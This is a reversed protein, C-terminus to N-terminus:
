KRLQFVYGFGAKTYEFTYYQKAATNITYTKSGVVESWETKVTHNGLRNDMFRITFGQNLTGKGVLRGDVFVQVTPNKTHHFGTFELTVEEKDAQSSSFSSSIVDSNREAFREKPTEAKPKPNEAKPKESSTKKSGGTLSSMFSSAMNSKEEVEVAEGILTLALPTIEDLLNDNKVVKTKQSEISASEVNIIKLSLMVKDSGASTFVSLVVKNAGALKGIASVQSEDVAGSNSFKQEKLVRDILSREVITYKGTNVIASSVMERIVIVMGEDMNKATGVPDFIAVRLKKEQAALPQALVYLLIGFCIVIRKM